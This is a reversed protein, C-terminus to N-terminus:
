LAIERRWPKSKTLYSRCCRKYLGLISVGREISSEILGAISSNDCQAPVVEVISRNQFVLDTVDYENDHPLEVCLDCWEPVSEMDLVDLYLM